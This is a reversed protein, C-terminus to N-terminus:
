FSFNGSDLVAGFGATSGTASPSPRAESGRSDGAQDREQEPGQLAAWSLPCKTSSGRGSVRVAGAWGGAGLPLRGAGLGWPSGGLGWVGLPLKGLLSSANPLLHLIRRPLRRPGTGHGRHVCLRPGPSPAPPSLWATSWHESQM